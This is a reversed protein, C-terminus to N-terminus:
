LLAAIEKQNNGAYSGKPTEVVPTSAHGLSKVHALAEESESVDIIRM